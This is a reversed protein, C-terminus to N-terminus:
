NQVVRYYKALQIKYTEIMEAIEPKVAEKFSSLMTVLNITVQFVSGAASIIQRYKKTNNRSERELSVERRNLQFSSKKLTVLRPPEVGKTFAKHKKLM